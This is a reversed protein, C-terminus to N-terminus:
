STWDAVTLLFPRHFTRTVEKRKRSGWSGSMKERVPTSSREIEFHQAEVPVKMRRGDAQPSSLIGFDSMRTSGPSSPAPARSRQSQGDRERPKLAHYVYDKLRVTPQTPVTDSSTESAMSSEAPAEENIVPPPPIPASGPVPVPPELTVPSPLPSMDHPPPIAIYSKGNAVPIWNDPPYGLPDSKSRARNKLPPTAEVHIPPPLPGVQTPQQPKM